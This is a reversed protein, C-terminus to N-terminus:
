IKTSGKGECMVKGNRFLVHSTYMMAMTTENDGNTRKKNCRVETLEAIDSVWFKPRIRYETAARILLQEKPEKFVDKSYKAVFLILPCLLHQYVTMVAEMGGDEFIAGMVSEFVDGLIKPAEFPEVERENM